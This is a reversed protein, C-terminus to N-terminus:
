KRKNSLQLPPFRKLTFQTLPPGGATIITEAHIVIQTLQNMSFVSWLQDVSDMSRVDCSVFLVNEKGYKEGFSVCTETGLSENVDSLCVRYDGSINM